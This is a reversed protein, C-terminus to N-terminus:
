IVGQPAQASFFSPLTNGWSCIRSIDLVANMALCRRLGPENIANSFYNRIIICMCNVYVICIESFVSVDKRLSKTITANRILMKSEIQRTKQFQIEVDAPSIAFRTNLIQCGHFLFRPNIPKITSISFRPFVKIKLAAM